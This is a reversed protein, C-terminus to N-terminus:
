TICFVISNSLSGIVNASIMFVKYHIKKNIDLVSKKDINAQINMFKSKLNVSKFILLLEEYFKSKSRM